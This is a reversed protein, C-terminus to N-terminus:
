CARRVAAHQHRGRVVMPASSAPSAPRPWRRVSSARAGPATVAPATRPTSGAAPAPRTRPRRRRSRRPRRRSRAPARRRRWTPRRPSCRRPPPPAAVRRGRACALPSARRAALVCCLRRARTARRSAAPRSGWRRPQVPPRSVGRPEGRESGPAGDGCRTLPHRLPRRRDGHVRAVGSSVSQERGHSRASTFSTSPPGFAVRHPTPTLTPERPTSTHGAANYAARTRTTAASM